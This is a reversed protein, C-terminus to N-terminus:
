CRMYARPNGLPEVGAARCIRIWTRPSLSVAYWDIGGCVRCPAEPVPSAEIVETDEPHPLSRFSGYREGFRRGFLAVEWRAALTPHLLGPRGDETRCEGGAIWDAAMAGPIKAPYKAVEAICDLDAARVDSVEGLEPYAERGWSIWQPLDVWPGFWLVHLHVHGTGALEVTAWAGLHRPSGGDEALERERKLILRWADMLGAWRSRLAAVTLDEECSPDYVGTLTVLRPRYDLGVGSCWESMTALTERLVAGWALLQASRRRACRPCSRAHCVHRGRCGVLQGNGGAPRGCRGCTHGVVKSICM